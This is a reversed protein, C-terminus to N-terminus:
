PNWCREAPGRAQDPVHGCIRKGAIFLAAGEERAPAEDPDLPNEAEPQGAPVLECTLDLWAKETIRDLVLREIETLGDQEIVDVTTQM